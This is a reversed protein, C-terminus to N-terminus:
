HKGPLARPPLHIAEGRADLAAERIAESLTPHAHVTEAVDELTAEMHIAAAAEAILDGAGHGVISVGVITETAADAIIKVFGQHMGELVARGNAAFPFRGILLSHYRARAEEELLGVGAVEPHTYLVRPIAQYSVERVGGLANCAACEGESTAKHALMLGGVADGVAYIGPASTEMRTNVAIANGNLRLGPQDIGLGHLFPRRGVAVLVTDAEVAAPRDDHTFAVRLRGGERAIASV